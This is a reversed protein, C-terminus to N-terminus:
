RRRGAQTCLWIAIVFQGRAKLIAAESDGEYSVSPLDYATIPEVADGPAAVWNAHDLQACSASWYDYKVVVSDTVVADMVDTHWGSMGWKISFADYEALRLGVVGHLASQGSYCVLAIIQDDPVNADAHTIVDALAVQVAGPIHGKDYLEKTRLDMIYYDNTDDLDTMITNVDAALKIWTSGLISNIDMEKTGMYAVVDAANMTTLNSGEDDDDSCSTLVISTLAFMVVLLMTWKKKM